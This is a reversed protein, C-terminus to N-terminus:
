QSVRWPGHRPISSQCLQGGAVLVEAVDEAPNEGADLRKILVAKEDGTGFPGAGLVSPALRRRSRSGGKRGGAPEGMAM